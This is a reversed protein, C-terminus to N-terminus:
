RVFTNKVRESVSMYPGWVLLAGASRGAERVTDSDFMPENPLIFTLLWADAIIFMLNAVMMAIYLSPFRRSRQFFLFILFIGAVIFLINGVIEGILLPAWLQHYSETGPTTVLEWNGDRFIPPYTQVVFILWRTPAVFLGIGVLILWGGLGSLRENNALSDNM